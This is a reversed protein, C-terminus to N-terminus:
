EIYVIEYKAAFAYGKQRRMARICDLTNAKSGPSYDSYFNLYVYSDGDRLVAICEYGM